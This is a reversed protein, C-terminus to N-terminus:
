FDTLSVVKESLKNGNNDYKSMLVTDDDSYHLLVTGGDSLKKCVFKIEGDATMRVGTGEPKNNLWHGM